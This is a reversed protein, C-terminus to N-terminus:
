PISVDYPDYRPGCRCAHGPDHAPICVADLTQLVLALVTGADGPSMRRNM